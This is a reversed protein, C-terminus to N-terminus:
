RAHGPEYPRRTHPPCIADLAHAVGDVEPASGVSVRLAEGVQHVRIGRALLEARWPVAPDPPEAFLFNAQSPKVRFDRAALIARLRERNATNTARRCEATRTDTLAALAAVAAPQSVTFPTQLAQLRATLTAPAVAYGVRLGALGHIKSFTRTTVVNPLASLEVLSLDDTLPEAYDHYAEDNLVVTTAPVARALDAVCRRSVFAGSPNQPNSLAVLGVSSDVHAATVPGASAVPLEVAPTACQKSLLPYLEFAPVHYLVARGGGTFARWALAILEASGAGVLVRDLPVGHLEAVRSRLQGAASPYRNTSSITARMAGAVHETVAEPHENAPLRLM